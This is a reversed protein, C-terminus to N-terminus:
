CRAAGAGYTLSGCRLDVAVDFVAGQLVRVLKAQAHPPRQFHLGRLTGRPKSLSQNDQVFQVDIGCDSYRAANYTESFWGRSDAFRRPRCLILEEIALREIQM